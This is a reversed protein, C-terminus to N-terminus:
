PAEVPIRSTYSSQYGTPLTEATNNKAITSSAMVVSLIAENELMMTENQFQTPLVLTPENNVSKNM